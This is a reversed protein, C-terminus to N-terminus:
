GLKARAPIAFGRLLESPTMVGRGARQVLSPVIAGDACAIELGHDLTTGPEGRRDDITAALIKIREGGYEFFAGPIPNFARIQREVEAASRSFDLRAEQKEIKAAYTVGEEPQAPPQLDTLRDLVEIMLAAGIGAL